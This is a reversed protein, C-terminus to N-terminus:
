ASGIIPNLKNDVEMDPPMDSYLQYFEDETWGCAEIFEAIFVCQKHLTEPKDDELPKDFLEEVQRCVYSFPLKLM